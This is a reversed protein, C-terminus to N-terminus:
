IKRRYAQRECYHVTTHRINSYRFIIKVQIAAIELANLGCRMEPGLDAWQQVPSTVREGSKEQM